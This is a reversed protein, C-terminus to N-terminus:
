SNSWANSDKDPKTHGLARGKDEAIRALTRTVRRHELFASVVERQGPAVSKIGITGRTVLDALADTDGEYYSTV